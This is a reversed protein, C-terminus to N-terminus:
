SRIAYTASPIPILRIDKVFKDATALANITESLDGSGVSISLFVILFNKNAVTPRTANPM